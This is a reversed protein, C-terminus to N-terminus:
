ARYTASRWAQIIRLKEPLPPEILGRRQYEARLSSMIAESFEIAGAVEANGAAMKLSEILVEHIALLIFLAVDGLKRADMM